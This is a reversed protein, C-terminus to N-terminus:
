FAWCTLSSKDILRCISKIYPHIETHKRFFFSIRERKKNFKGFKMRLFEFNACDFSFKRVSHSIATFQILLIECWIVLNYSIVANWVGNADLRHTQRKTSWFRSISLTSQIQFLVVCSLTIETSQIFLGVLETNNMGAFLLTQVRQRKKTRTIKKTHTKAFSQHHSIGHM